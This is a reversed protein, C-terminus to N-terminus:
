RSHRGQSTQKPPVGQIKQRESVPMSQQPSNNSASEVRFGATAGSTTENPRAGQPTAVADTRGNPIVSGNADTTFGRQRALFEERKQRREDEAEKENTMDIGYKELKSELTRVAINLSRATQTKNGKHYSYAKMVAQREVEELPMGPTWFIRDSSM